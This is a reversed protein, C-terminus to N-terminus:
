VKYVTKKPLSSYWEIIREKPITEHSCEGSVDCFISLHAGKMQSDIVVKFTNTTTKRYFTVNKFIGKEVFFHNCKDERFNINEQLELFSQVTESM